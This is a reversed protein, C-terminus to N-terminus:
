CRRWAASTSACCRLPLPWLRLAPRQARCAPAVAWAPACQSSPTGHSHRIHPCVPTWRRRGVQCAQETDFVNLLWLGYDRQLWLADNPCGHLVKVVAPSALPERLLQMAQHGLALADM